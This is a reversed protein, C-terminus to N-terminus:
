SRKNVRAVALTVNATEQKLVLLDESLASKRAAAECVSKVGICSQVVGSPNPVTINEIENRSYFHVPLNLRRAAQVIGQEDAKLDISALNRIAIPSLNEREFVSTIFDLIEVEDIGRNCGIGVVLNQPHLMLCDLREPPLYESVWIGFLAKLKEIDFAQERCGGAGRSTPIKLRNGLSNSSAVSVSGPLWVINSQEMLYPKLIGAPDYVWISEDELLARAARALMGINGTQLGAEMAILDLAPKDHLDSATTIVPRGKILEAIKVALRNAGGLRGSVLSIVYQGREDIVVVAPDVTKHRLLPAICRVVIGTAMICVLATHRTWIEPFLSKVRRYGRAGMCIAFGHREPVYCTSGPLEKHLQLSLNVANGTIAIIGLASGAESLAKELDM